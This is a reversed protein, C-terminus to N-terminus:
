NSAVPLWGSGQMRDLALSIQRPTYRQKRPNWGHVADIVSEVSTSSEHKAVVWHVTSLLELGDPSEFGDILESVRGVRSQMSADNVVYSEAQESAGRILRLPKEPQDGGDAYGTIFHGEIANLVHRLNEAYPGYPAKQYTLKLPEGASQLFYMLKHVELLSVSTDLMGQLYRRMLLLLAARGPTMDPASHTRVMDTANPSGTPEYVTIEVGDLDGLSRQIRERVASWDLGGLGAGLPPVAVSRIDRRKLEEALAELGSEIDEIRSKGRWHRKTPFNIIFRPNTLRHTEVVFMRGPRVEGAKCAAVYAKFNDPYAKKFQLAIGRGMVGVCNVTNVLAEAESALLDAGDEYTIM